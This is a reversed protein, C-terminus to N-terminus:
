DDANSRFQSRRKDALAELGDLLCRLGFEFFEEDTSAFADDDLTAILPCRRTSMAKEMVPAQARGAALRWSLGGPRSGPTSQHPEGDRRTTM